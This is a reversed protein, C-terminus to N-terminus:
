PNTLTFGNNNLTAPATLTYTNLVSVYGQLTKVGTGNLTLNRYVQKAGVTPGGLIDQNNLGYIWTNNNTSSNLIGNTAFPKTASKYNVTPTGTGMTLQSSANNGDLAAAMIWTLVGAGTDTVTVTIAGSITVTNNTTLTATTSAGYTVSQNNTSFTIAGTGFNPTPSQQLGFGNKFEITPNGGSFDITGSNGGTAALTVTDGFIVSGAGTKSLKSVSPASAAGAINTTGTITLNYTSCELTAAGSLDLKKSVTSNGNLTKTGTGIIYLGAFTSYNLTFNGNFNYRISQFTNTSAPTLNLIGTTMLSAASSNNVQLSAVVSLTSSANDGNITSNTAVVLGSSAADITLTIAGSITIAADFTLTMASGSGNINRISQNNTSFTWAGTGSSFLTPTSGPAQIGGKCEVTPNGGSLDFTQTATSGSNFNLEGGFTISGAGTKTFSTSLGLTTTGTVTLNYTSLAISGSTGLTLSGSLSTNVGLTKTGTGAILLSSLSAYRTANITCSYNGNFELTNAFSSVDITGTSMSNDAATQTAFNLISKNVFASTGDTGNITSSLSIRGAGASAGTAPQTVTIGSAITITVGVTITGLSSRFGSFNQNNTTFSATGNWVPTFLAQQLGQTTMDIGGRFEVTTNSWNIVQASSGSMDVNGVFIMTGGMTSQWFCAATSTIGNVTLTNFGVEFNTTGSGISSASTGVFLNGLVTTDGILYKLGNTISFGVNAENTAITLNRYTLPLIRQRSGNYAITGLTGPIFNDIRNNDTHLVLSMAFTTATMDLTGLIQCDGLIYLYKNPTTNAVSLTGSPSVYLNHINTATAPSSATTIDFAVNHRIYVDDNASPLAGVIGSATQWVSVDSWNGSKISYFTQSLGPKPFGSDAVPIMKVVGATQDFVPTPFGFMM